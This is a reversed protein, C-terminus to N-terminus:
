AAERKSYQPDWMQSTFYNQVEIIAAKTKESVVPLKHIDGFNEVLHKRADDIYKIDDTDYFIQGCDYVTQLLRKWQIEEDEQVIIRQTERIEINLEWPIPVKGADNSQKWTNRKITKTLKLAASLRWRWKDKSVLLEWLGYYIFDRANFWAAYVAEEIEKISDVSSIDAIIIKDMTPDDLWEEKFRRLAYLAQELLNGSDLRIWIKKGTHRYKKKLAIAKEIWQYSDVLDVLLSIKDTKEIAELFAEDETPYAALFRHAITGSTRLQPYVLATTDSSTAQLGWWVMLAEAADFHHDWNIVSRAGFEDAYIEAIRWEHMLQSIVLWDTAVASQFSARLLVAEYIAALEGPWKISLVPEGDRLVTGDAVAKITVPIHGDHNDIIDQWMAKNFASNWKKKKQANYFAAAFDLEAQTIKTKFLEIIKDKIGYIVNLGQKKNAAKRFTLTLVEEELWKDWRIHTMTRNYADTKVIKNTKAIQKRVRTDKITEFEEFEIEPFETITKTYQELNFQSM